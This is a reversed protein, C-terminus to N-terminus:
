LSLLRSDLAGIQLLVIEAHRSALDDLNANIDGGSRCEGLMLVGPFFDDVDDFAEDFILELGLLGYRELSAVHQEDRGSRYVRRLIDAADVGGLQAGVEDLLALREDFQRLSPRHGCRPRCWFPFCTVVMTCSRTICGHRP